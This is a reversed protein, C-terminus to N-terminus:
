RQLPNTLPILSIYFLLPLSHRKPLTTTSTSTSTTTSTTTSTSISTTTSTSTSTNISNTSYHPASQYLFCFKDVYMVVEYLYCM